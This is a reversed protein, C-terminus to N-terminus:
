EKKCKEIYENIKGILQFRYGVVKAWIQCRKLAISESVIYISNKNVYTSIKGRVFLKIYDERSFTGIRETTRDNQKGLGNVEM